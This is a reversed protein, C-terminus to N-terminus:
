HGRFEWSLMAAEKASIILDIRLWFGSSSATFGGVGALWLHWKRVPSTANDEPRLLSRSTILEGGEFAIARTIRMVSEAM